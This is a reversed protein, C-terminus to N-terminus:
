PNRGPATTATLPTRLRITTGGGPRSDIELSAGVQGLRERLSFLGFGQSGGRKELVEVPDFGVGDDTITIWLEGERKDLSIQVQNTQAHKVVNTLLEQVARFFLIRQAEPLQPFHPDCHLDLTLGHRQRMQDALWSLADKLEGDFLLPPSLKSTLARSAAIAEELFRLGEEVEASRGERALAERLSAIKIRALALPQGVHDHLDAALLRREREETLSLEAALSRLREQNAKLEETAAKEQSIDEVMALLLPARDHQGPILSVHLRAWMFSGDRRRYRAERVYGRRQGAQIEKLLRRREARDEPHLLDETTQRCLEERPYGLKAVFAPNVELGRGNLEMLGIGIPANEFISRFRAESAKLAEEAQYRQTIDRALALRLKGGNLRLSQIRVEVPFTSGDKRRHFSQLTMPGALEQRWLRDLEERPLVEIDAVGLRLLEERTFGLTQCAQRNVEIFRGQEHLFLADPMLDFLQRFREESERLDAELRRRQTIDRLIVLVAPRGQFLLHVGATEVDVPQGDLRVLRVEARDVRTQQELTQRIRGAVLERSEPSVFAMVERGVLEEASRGGLLQVAAPNLFVLRHDQHLIIGDPSFEVLRRYREESDQFLRHIEAHQRQAEAAARRSEGLLLRYHKRGLCALLTLVAWTLVLSLANLGLLTCRPCLRAGALGMLTLGALLALGLWLPRTTVWAPTRHGEGTKPADPKCPEAM